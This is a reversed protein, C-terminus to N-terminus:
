SQKCPQNCSRMSQLVAGAQLQALYLVHLGNVTSVQLCVHQMIMPCTPVYEAHVVDQQHLNAMARCVDLLIGGKVAAPALALSPRRM